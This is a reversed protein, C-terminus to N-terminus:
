KRKIEEAVSRVIEYDWFRVAFSRPWKSGDLRVSVTRGSDAVVVGKRHERFVGSLIALDNSEVRDGKRFM